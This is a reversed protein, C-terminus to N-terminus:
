WSKMLYVASKRHSILIRCRQLNKVCQHDTLKFIAGAHHLDCFIGWMWPARAQSPSCSDSWLFHLGAQMFRPFKNRSEYNAQLKRCCFCWMFLFFSNCFLKRGYNKYIFLAFDADQQKFYGSSHSQVWSKYVLSSNKKIGQNKCADPLCRLSGNFSIGEIKGRRTM